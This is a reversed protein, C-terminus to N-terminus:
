LNFLKQKPNSLHEELSNLVSKPIEDDSMQWIIKYNHLEALEDMLEKYNNYSHQKLKKLGKKITITTM